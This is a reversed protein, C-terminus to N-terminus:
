RYFKNLIIGGLTRNEKEEKHFAMVIDDFDHSTGKWTGEELMIYNEKLNGILGSPYDTDLKICRLFLWDILKDDKATSVVARKMEKEFGTIAKDHTSYIEKILSRGDSYYIILVYTHEIKSWKEKNWTSKSM